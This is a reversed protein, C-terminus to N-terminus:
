SRAIVAKYLFSLLHVKMQPVKDNLGEKLDELIDEVSISYAFHDLAVKTEEIMMTKKDRFKPILLPFM